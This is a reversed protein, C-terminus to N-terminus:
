HHRGSYLDHMNCKPSRRCFVCQSISSSKPKDASQLSSDPASIQPKKASVLYSFENNKEEISGDAYYKSIYNEQQNERRGHHIPPAFNMTNDIPSINQNLDLLYRWSNGCTSCRLLRGIVKGSPKTIIYNTCCRPCSIKM